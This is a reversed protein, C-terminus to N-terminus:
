CYLNLADLAAGMETSTPLAALVFRDPRLLIVQGRADGAFDALATDLPQVAPSLAQWLPHSLL